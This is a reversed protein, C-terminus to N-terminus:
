TILKSLIGGCEGHSSGITAIAVMLSLLSLIPGQLWGRVSLSLFFRESCHDPKRDGGTAMRYM